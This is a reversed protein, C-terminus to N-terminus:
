LNINQDNKKIKTKEVRNLLLEMIRLREKYNQIIAELIVENDLNSQLEKSLNEGEQDLEDMFSLFDQKQKENLDKLQYVQQKKLNVLTQYHSNIEMLEPIEAVSQPSEGPQNLVFLGIGFVVLLLAAIRLFPGNLSFVKRRKKQQDEQDLAEDIADWMKARNPKPADLETLDTKNDRIFKEFNDM